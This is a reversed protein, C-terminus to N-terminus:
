RVTSGAYQHQAIAAGPMWVRHRPVVDTVIRLMNETLMLAADGINPYESFGRQFGLSGETGLGIEGILDLRAVKRITQGGTAAALTAESVETILGIIIAKSSKLGMFKGVTPTEGGATSAALEVTGQSGSISVVRGITEPRARTTGADPVGIPNMTMGARDSKPISFIGADALIARPSKEVTLPENSLLEAV